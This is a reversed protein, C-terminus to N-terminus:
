KFFTQLARRMDGVYPDIVSSTDVLVAIQAPESAPEVRLVERTLGGERVVFDAPGLSPVPKSAKDVVAVYVAREDSQAFATSAVAATLAAIAVVRNM